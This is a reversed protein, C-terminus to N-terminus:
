HWMNSQIITFVAFLGNLFGDFNVRPSVGEDLNVKDESDFKMKYAFFELGLLTYAFMWIFLLILFNRIDKLTNAITSLLDQLKTWSKVLKFLRM